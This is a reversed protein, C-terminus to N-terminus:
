ALPVLAQHVRQSHHAHLPPQGPPTRPRRYRLPRGWSVAWDNIIRRREFLDSRAYAAEVNLLDKLAQTGPPLRLRKTEVQQRQRAETIRGRHIM